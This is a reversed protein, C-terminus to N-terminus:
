RNLYSKEYKGKIKFNFYILWVIVSNVLIEEKSDLVCPLKSWEM